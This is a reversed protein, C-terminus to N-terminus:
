GACCIVPNGHPLYANFYLQVSMSPNYFFFPDAFSKLAVAVQRAKDTTLDFCANSSWAGPNGPSQIAGAFLEAVNPPLLALLASPDTVLRDDPYGNLCVLYKSPVFLRPEPDEWASAPIWSLDPDVGNTVLDRDGDFWVWPLGSPPPLAPDLRGGSRIEARVLELGEPTLRREFWNKWGPISLAAIVRGDEYVFIPLPPLDALLVGTEPESPRAGEPPFVDLREPASPVSTTTSSPGPGAPTVRERAHRGGSVFVTAVVIAVVVSLAVVATGILARRRPRRGDLALVPADVSELATPDPVPNAARVMRDIQDLTM